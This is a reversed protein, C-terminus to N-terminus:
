RHSHTPTVPWPCTSSVSTSLATQVLMFTAGHAQKGVSYSATSSHLETRSRVASAPSSRRGRGLLRMRCSSDQGRPLSAPRHPSRYSTRLLQRPSSRSDRCCLLLLLVGIMISFARLRQVTDHDHVQMPPGSPLGLFAPAFSFGQRWQAGHHSSDSVSLPM